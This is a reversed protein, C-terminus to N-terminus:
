TPRQPERAPAAFPPLPRSGPRAIFRLPHIPAGDASQVRPATVTLDGTRVLALWVPVWILGIVGIVFFPAQWAAGAARIAEIVLPTLVAGFSAGSQLISNGLPRQSDTLIVAVGSVPLGSSDRAVVDIKLDAPQAFLQALLCVSLLGRAIQRM